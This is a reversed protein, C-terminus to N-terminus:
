GTTLNDVMIQNHSMSSQIRELDLGKEISFPAWDKSGELNLLYQEIFTMEKKSPLYFQDYAKPLTKTIKDTYKRDGKIHDLNTVIKLICAPQHNFVLIRQQRPNMKTM